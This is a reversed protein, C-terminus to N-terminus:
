RPAGQIGHGESPGMDLLQGPTCDLSRCLKEITALTPNYSPRSAIADVTAQSLGTMEALKAYTLRTGTRCRFEDM